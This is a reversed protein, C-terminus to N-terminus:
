KVVKIFANWAQHQIDNMTNTFAAHKKLKRIQSGDFIGEKVLFVIYVGGGGASMYDMQDDNM